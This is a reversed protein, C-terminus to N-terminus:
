CSPWASASANARALRMKRGGDGNLDLSVAPQQNQDFTAHRQLHLRRDPGRGEVGRGPRRPRRHVTGLEAPHRRDTRHGAHRDDDVMRMELTATRGIIDKAHAVDQVGPLQVVIRDAGQQQIVPETVGLENVRKSLTTINQKVGEEITRQLAEPKLTVVLKLDTGDAPRCVALDPEPRDANRAATRTPTASSSKSPTASASSAPTASTRTACSAACARWCARSAQKNLVAKADVQLLFHVGGRLDLGLNMPLAHLAQM